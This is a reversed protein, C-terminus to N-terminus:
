KNIECKDCFCDFINGGLFESSWKNKKKDKKQKNSINYRISFSLYYFIDILFIFFDKSNQGSPTDDFIVM